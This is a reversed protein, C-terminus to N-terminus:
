DTRIGQDERREVRLDALYEARMQQMKLIMKELRLGSLETMQEVRQDTGQDVSKVRLDSLVMLRNMQQVVLEIMKELRLDLLETSMQKVELDSVGEVSQNSVSKKM